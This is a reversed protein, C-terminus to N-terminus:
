LTSYFLNKRPFGSLPDHLIHDASSRIELWYDLGESDAGEVTLIQTYM